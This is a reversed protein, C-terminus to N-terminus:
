LCFYPVLGVLLVGCAEFQLIQCVSFILTTYDLTLNLLHYPKFSFYRYRKILKGSSNIKIEFTELALVIIYLRKFYRILSVDSKRKMYRGVTFSRSYDKM